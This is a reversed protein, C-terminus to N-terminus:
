DNVQIIIISVDELPKNDQPVTAVAAIADVVEMGETM